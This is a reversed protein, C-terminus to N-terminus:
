PAGQILHDINVILRDGKRSVLYRDLGRPAPGSVRLGNADFLTLTCSDVFEVGSDTRVYVRTASGDPRTIPEGPLAIACRDRGGLEPSWTARVAIPDDGAYTLYFSADAGAITVRQTTGKPYQLASLVVRGPLVAPPTVADPLFAVYAYVVAFVFVAVGLTIVLLYQKWVPTPDLSEPPAWHEVPEDFGV